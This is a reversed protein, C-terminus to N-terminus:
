NKFIKKIDEIQRSLIDFYTLDIIEKKEKKNEDLSTDEEKVEKKKFFNLTKNFINKLPKDKKPEIKKKPAEKKKIVMDNDIFIYNSYDDRILKKIINLIDTKGDGIYTINKKLTGDNLRFIMINDKLLRYCTTTSQNTILLQYPDFVIKFINKFKPVEDLLIALQSVQFKAHFELIIQKNAKKALQYLLNLKDIIDKNTDKEESVEPLRIILYNVKLMDLIELSRKVREFYWDDMNLITYSEFLSDLAVIKIKNKKLRAAFSLIEEDSADIIKKSDNFYRVAINSIDLKKAQGMQEFVDKSEQDFFGGLLVKV